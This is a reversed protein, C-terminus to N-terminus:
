RCTIVSSACFRCGAYRRVSLVVTGSSLNTTQTVLSSALGFCPSHSGPLARNPLRVGAGPLPPMLGTETLAQRRWRRGKDDNPWGPCGNLHALPFGPKTRGLAM